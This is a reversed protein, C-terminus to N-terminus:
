LNTRLIAIRHGSPTTLSDALGSPTAIKETETASPLNSQNGRFILQMPGPLDTEVLLIPPMGPRELMSMRNPNPTMEQSKVDFFEQYFKLDQDFHATPMYLYALAFDAAKDPRTPSQVAPAASQPLRDVRKGMRKEMNIRLMAECTRQKFEVAGQADEREIQRALKQLEAAVEKENGGLATQLQIVLDSYLQDSRTQDKERVCELARQLVNDSDTKEASM